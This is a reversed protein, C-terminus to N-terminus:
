SFMVLIILHPSTFMDCKSKSEMLLIPKISKKNDNDDDSDETTRCLSCSEIGCGLDDRLYHERVVKLIKGRRTKKVFTKLKFMKPKNKTRLYIKAVVAIFKLM